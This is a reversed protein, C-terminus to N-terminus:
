RLNISRGWVNVNFWAIFEVLFRRDAGYAEDIMHDLATHGPTWRNGTDKYFQALIDPQGIAYHLAGLWAGRMYDPTDPPMILVPHSEEVPENKVLGDIIADMWEGITACLAKTKGYSAGAVLGDEDDFALVVVADAGIREAIAKAETIRPPTM